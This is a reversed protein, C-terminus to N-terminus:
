VAEVGTHKAPYHYLKYYDVAKGNLNNEGNIPLRFLNRWETDGLFWFDLWNQKWGFDSPIDFSEITTYQHSKTTKVFLSLLAVKVTMIFQDLGLLKKFVSFGDHAHPSPSPPGTSASGTAGTTEQFDRPVTSHTFSPSTIARNLKTFEVTTLGKFIQLTQTVVLFLIWICQFCSWIVINFIFHSNTYGLCMDDSLFRCLDKVDSENDMSEAYVDFYKKALATYLFTAVTLSYVFTIFVKHNRVGVDNYIWPCYHDFRAVLQKSIRSYKSRLPRRNFTHICFHETDFKGLAILEKIDKFIISTDAPVPVYGPNIMMSKYFCYSFIYICGILVMSTFFRKSIVKPLIAFFFTVICWFATGSFVGSMLPSQFTSTDKPIFVPFAFKQLLFVSFIVIVASGVLKPIAYGVYPAFFTVAKWTRASVLHTNKEWNRNKEWLEVCKMDKAVAFSDKGADNKLFIDSGAEELIALVHKNGRIFAWHLPTMLNKDIKSVDSGYRLLINVSLIDGQYAAWHLPTCNILDPEDIYISKHGVVCRLIIYAIMTINSSLVALHLANYSQSDKITPDANTESLFYDVVYVLGGRCAWHLPSAALQGGVVNVEARSHENEVLYKVVSLRNNIAAWHLGTIGEECSDTAAVAASSILEKVKALDGSQCAAVFVDWDSDLKKESLVAVNSARTEDLAATEGATTVSSPLAEHLEPQESDFLTEAASGRPSISDKQAEGLDPPKLESEM